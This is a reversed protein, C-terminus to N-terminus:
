RAARRDQTEANKIKILEKFSCRMLKAEMWTSFDFIKLLQMEYKDMSLQDFLKKYGEWLLERSRKGAPLMPQQLFKFIVKEVQYSKKNKVLTRKISRIESEIYEHNKLEYHILLHLLRFTRYSPLAHFIRSEFLVKSLEKHAKDLEGLGIFIIASYLYVDAQRSVDLLATKKFLTEEFSKRRLLAKEFEGQSILSAVSYMFVIRNLMVEYVPSHIASRELKNIFPQISDYEKVSILSELIGEIMSLYDAPREIWLDRKSEMLKDLNYLTKLASRSDNITIFYYSQFLLHTKDSEFTDALPNSNYKLETIVLDNLENKQETTRVVGKYLLRHRLSEYLATHQYINKQYKLLEEIKMQKKVLEGESITHFGLTSLYYLETQLAWLQILFEESKEAEVIIKELLSFGDEYLSKDFLIRAKLFMNTLRATKDAESKFQLLCDLIIRYLYKCSAEFLEPSKGALFVKRAKEHDKEKAIIDFLKMYSTAGTHISAYLRVYRKEAKDLSHVLQFLSDYKAM